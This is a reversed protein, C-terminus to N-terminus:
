YRGGRSGVVTGELRRVLAALASNVPTAVGLAAGCTAVYGNLSAIETRRGRALDQETSSTADPMSSRGLDLAADVLDMDGLDVGAREAVDVAEDVAEVLTGRLADDAVIPGYRSRTLASIANYACNIILKRWQEGLINDSLACPIDSEEFLRVVTSLDRDQGPLNGVVVDGRGSHRVSGPGSMAVAVYIVGAVADIAAANRIREVNDVGNQLSVVITGPRMHAALDVATSETDLTKVTLLVIDAEAAVAIDSSASVPVREDFTLTQLRLGDNRIATVHEPRAVLTVTTGGRALLGGFYCGVAGAGAVVVKPRPKVSM